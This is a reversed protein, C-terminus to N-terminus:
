RGAEADDSEKGAREAAALVARLQDLSESATIEDSLFQGYTVYCESMWDFLAQAETRVVAYGEPLLSRIVALRAADNTLLIRNSEGGNIREVLQRYHGAQEIHLSISGDMDDDRWIETSM